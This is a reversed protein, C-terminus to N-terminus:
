AVQPRGNLWTYTNRPAQIVMPPILFMMDSLPKDCPRRNKSITDNVIISFQGFHFLTFRLTATESRGQLFIYTVFNKGLRAVGNQFYQFTSFLKLFDHFTGSPLKSIHRFTMSPEPFKKFTM